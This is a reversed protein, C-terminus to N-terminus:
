ALASGLSFLPRLTEYQINLRAVRLARYAKSFAEQAIDYADDYNDTMQYLTAHLKRSHRIVLEDFARSDGERARAVLETDELTTYSIPASM